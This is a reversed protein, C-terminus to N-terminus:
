FTYAFPHRKGGINQWGVGCRMWHWCHSQPPSFSSGNELGTVPWRNIPSFIAPSALAEPYWSSPATSTISDLILSETRRMSTPQLLIQTTTHHSAVSRECVNGQSETNCCSDSSLRRLNGRSGLAQSRHPPAVPACPLQVIEIRPQRPLTPGCNEIQDIASAKLTGFRPRRTFYHSKRRYELEQRSTPFNLARAYRSCLM